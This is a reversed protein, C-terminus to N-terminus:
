YALGSLVSFKVECGQERLSCASAVCWSLGPGEPVRVRKNYQKESTLLWCIM